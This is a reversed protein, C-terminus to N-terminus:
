GRSGRTRRVRAVLALAEPVRWITTLSGYVLAFAAFVAAALVLRQLNAAERGVVFAAAAALGASSWLVGVYRVPLGTRGIRRNLRSRLLLFEIWGAIGASATLGAAGWRQDIGLLPPLPIAFAYGLVTTLVVRVIAFRLPTRTDHLAYYTSSYLRGLTSALLGVASGALVGWTFMTDTQTFRGSQFLARVIVDGLAFFAAASPIVFFAIRRLGGDLRTRLMAAVEPASGVLSSM